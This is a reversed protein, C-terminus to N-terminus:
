HEEPAQSAPEGGGFDRMVPLLFLHNDTTGILMGFHM